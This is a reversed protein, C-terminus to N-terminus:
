RKRQRMSRLENVRYQYRDDKKNILEEVASEPITGYYDWPLWGDGVRMRYEIVVKPHTSDTVGKDALLKDADEKYKKNSLEEDRYGLKIDPAVRGFRRDFYETRKTSTIEPNKGTKCGCSKSANDLLSYVKVNRIQGCSCVCAIYPIGGNIVCPGVVMWSGYEKGIMAEPNVKNYRRKQGNPDDDCLEVWYNVESDM